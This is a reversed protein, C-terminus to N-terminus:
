RHPTLPYGESPPSECGSKTVTTVYYTTIKTRDAGADLYATAIIPSTTLRTTGQDTERYVHYKLSPDTAGSWALYVSTRGQRPSWVNVPALPPSSPDQTATIEFRRVIGATNRYSYDTSGATLDVVDGTLADRLSWASGLCGNQGAASLFSGSLTVAANPQDSGVEVSWVQPFDDHRIDWWLTAQGAPYDSHRVVASLAPSSIAELDEAPDFGNSAQPSAGLRLRTVATGGEAGDHPVSVKLRLEAADCVPIGSLAATTLILLRVIWTPNM